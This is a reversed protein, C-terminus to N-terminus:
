AEHKTLHQLNVVKYGVSSLSPELWKKELMAKIVVVVSNYHKFQLGHQIEKRNPLTQYNRYHNVIYDYVKQQTISLQQMVNSIKAYQLMNCIITLYYKVNNKQM